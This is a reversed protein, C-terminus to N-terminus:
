EIGVWQILTDYMDRYDKKLSVPKFETTVFCHESEGVARLEKTAQDIIQYQIRMKIGNFHILKTKIWVTEHFRVASKYQCNVGLVPSYIGAAEIKDYGLGILDLYHVRAEEFWRIYNSHHVVAMQDTEYYKAQHFYPQLQVKSDDIEM